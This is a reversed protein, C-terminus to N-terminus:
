AAETEKTAESETPGPGPAPHLESFWTRIEQLVTGDAKSVKVSHEAKKLLRAFLAHWEAVQARSLPCPHKPANTQMAPPRDCAIDEAGPTPTRREPEAAPEAPVESSSDCEGAPEPGATSTRGDELTVKGSALLWRGIDAPEADIGNLLRKWGKELRQEVTEEAAAGAKTKPKAAAIIATRSRKERGALIESTIGLENAAEAFKADNFITARSVGTKSAVYEAADDSTSSKSKSIKTRNQQLNSARDGKRAAYMRARLISAADPSLNRRSLQNAIVFEIAEERSQLAIARTEITAPEGTEQILDKLIELRNHGDLLILREEQRWVLLPALLGERELSERLVAIEAETPRSILGEFEPDIEIDSPRVVPTESASGSKNRDGNIENAPEPQKRSGTRSPTEIYKTKM